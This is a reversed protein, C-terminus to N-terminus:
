PCPTTVCQVPGPLTVIYGLARCAGAAQQIAVASTDLDGSAGASAARRAPAVVSPDAVDGYSALASVLRLGGAVVNGGVVQRVSTEIDRCMAQTAAARTLAPRTTTPAVTAAPAPAPATTAAPPRTTTVRALTTRPATTTPVVAATTTTADVTTITTSAPAPSATGDGGSRVLATAIGSGLVLAVVAGIVVTVPRVM